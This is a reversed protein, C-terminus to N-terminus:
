LYFFVSFPMVFDLFREITYTKLNSGLDVRARSPRLIKRARRLTPYALVRM